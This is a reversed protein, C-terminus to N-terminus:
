HGSHGDITRPFSDETGPEVVVFQGMMGNDQHRLLHCHYMCPTDPDIHTDIRVALTVPHDDDVRVTDKPERLHAPPAYGDVELVHCIAGDHRARTRPNALHCAHQLM